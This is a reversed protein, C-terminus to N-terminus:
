FLPKESRLYQEAKKITEKTFNLYDKAEKQSVMTGGEYLDLNRKNRMTEGLVKIKESQFIQALKELIKIHHGQRSKIKYGHFAILAIGTKILANYSFVFIVESQKNKVAIHFDKLAGNFYRFVIRQDFKKKEFFRSEFRIKM